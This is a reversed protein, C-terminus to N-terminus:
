GVLWDEMRYRNKSRRIVYVSADPGVAVGPWYAKNDREDVGHGFDGFHHIWDSGQKNSPMRGPIRYTLSRAFGIHEVARMPPHWSVKSWDVPDEDHFTRHRVVTTDNGPKARGVVRVVIIDGKEADGRWALWAKDAATPTIAFPSGDRRQGEISVMRGIGVLDGRPNSSTDYAVSPGRKVYTDLVGVFERNAETTAAAVSM